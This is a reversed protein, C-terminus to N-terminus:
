LKMVSAPLADMAETLIMWNDGDLDAPLPWTEDAACWGSDVAVRLLDEPTRDGLKLKALM